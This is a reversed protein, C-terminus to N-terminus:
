VLNQKMSKQNLTYFRMGENCLILQVFAICSEKSIAMLVLYPLEKYLDFFVFLPQWLRGKINAYKYFRYCNLKYKTFLLLIEQAALCCTNQNVAMDLSGHVMAQIHWKVIHM